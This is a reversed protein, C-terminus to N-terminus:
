LFIGIRVTTRGRTRLTKTSGDRWSVNVTVMGEYGGLGFHVMDVYSVGTTTGTAGVRRTMRMVGGGEKKGVEVRVTAHLSSARGTPAAGVRVLLWARGKVGERGRVGLVNRMVRVYGPHSRNNYSGESLIVDPWGDGDYDVTAPQDGRTRRNKGYGTQMHRSFTGDGNNLLVWDQGIYQTVLLDIHGDNNFDASTVGRSSGGVPIGASRSVDIFRGGIGTSADPINRLLYDNANPGIKPLLWDIDNTASRTVYLDMRGDNDYDLEMVSIVGRFDFGKPLVIDSVDKMEYAGTVRHVRLTHWTVLEMRGDGDVDVVTGYANPHSYNFGKVSKQRVVRGSIVTGSYHQKKRPKGPPPTKKPSTNMFM